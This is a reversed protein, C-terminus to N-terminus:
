LITSDASATCMQVQSKHVAVSYVRDSHGELRQSWVIGKNQKESYAGSNFDINDNNVRNVINSIGRELDTNKLDNTFSTNFNRGFLLNLNLSDLSDAQEKIVFSDLQSDDSIVESNDSKEENYGTYATQGYNNGFAYSAAGQIDAASPRPSTTNSEFDFHPNDSYNQQFTSTTTNTRKQTDIWYIYAYPEASGSAVIFKSKLGDQITSRSRDDLDFTSKSVISNRELLEQVASANFFSNRIPWNSNLIGNIQSIQHPGFNHNFSSHLINSSGSAPLFFSDSNKKDNNSIQNSNSSINIRDYIRLTDDFSNVALYAVRTREEFTLSIDSIPFGLKLLQQRSLEQTNPTKRIDWYYVDGNLDSSFLVSDNFQVLTSIPASVSGIDVASDGTRSDLIGIRGSSCGTYITSPNNIDYIVSQVLRKTKISMAKGMIGLDWEILLKDFGGSIMKPTIGSDEWSLTSVGMKHGELCAIQKCEITDWIRITKDFSGSALWDLTGSYEAAYIAGKHGTLEGGVVFQHARSGRSNSDNGNLQNRKDRHSKSATLLLTSDAVQSQADISSNKRQDTNVIESTSSNESVADTFQSQPNTSSSEIVTLKGEISNMNSNLDLQTKTKQDVFNDPLDRSIQSSTVTATKNCDNNLTQEEIISVK